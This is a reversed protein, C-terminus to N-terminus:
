RVGTRLLLQRLRDLAAFSTAVIKRSYDDDIAALAAEREYRTPFKLDLACREIRAEEGAAHEALTRGLQTLGITSDSM